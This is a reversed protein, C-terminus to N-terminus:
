ESQFGVEKTMVISIPASGLEMFFAMATVYVLPAMDGFIFGARHPHEASCARGSVAGIPIPPGHREVCFLAIVACAEACGPCRPSQPPKYNQLVPALM